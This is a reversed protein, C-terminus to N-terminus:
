CRRTTLPKQPIVGINSYGSTIIANYDDLSVSATERLETLQFEFVDFSTSTEERLRKSLVNSIEKHFTEKEEHDM